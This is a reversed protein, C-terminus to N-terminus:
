RRLISVCMRWGFRLFIASSVVCTSRLSLIISTCAELSRLLHSGDKGFLEYSFTPSLLNIDFAWGAPVLLLVCCFDRVGPDPSGECGGHILVELSETVTRPFHEQATFWPPLVTTMWTISWCLDPRAKGCDTKTLAFMRQAVPAMENPDYMTIDNLVALELEDKQRMAEPTAHAGLNVKLLADAARKLLKGAALMGNSYLIVKGAAAWRCSALWMEGAVEAAEAASVL